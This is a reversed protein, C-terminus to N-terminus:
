FIYRISPWTYTKSLRLFTSFWEVRNHLDLIYVFPWYECGNSTCQRKLAFTDCYIHTHILHMIQSSIQLLRQLRWMLKIKFSDSAAPGGGQIIPQFRVGKLSLSLFWTKSGINKLMKVYIKQRRCFLASGFFQRLIYIVIQSFINFVSNKYIFYKRFGIVKRTQIKTFFVTLGILKSCFLRSSSASSFIRKNCNKTSCYM